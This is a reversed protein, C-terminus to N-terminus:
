TILISWLYLRLQWYKFLLMLVDLFNSSFYEFEINWGNTDKCICRWIWTWWNTKRILSPSLQPAVDVSSSQPSSPPDNKESSIKGEQSKTSDGSVGHVLPVSLGGSIRNLSGTKDLSIEWTLRNRKTRKKRQREREKEERKSKIWCVWVCYLVALFFLLGLCLEGALHLRECFQIRFTM